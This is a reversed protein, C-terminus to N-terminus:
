IHDLQIALDGLKSRMQNAINADTSLIVLVAKEYDNEGLFRLGRALDTLVGSERIPFGAIIADLNNANLLGTIRELAAPYPSQFKIELAEQSQAVMEARNPITSLVKDRMQREAVRAALHEVKGNQRLTSLAKRKADNALVDPDLSLTAGQRIALAAIMEPAYYLSEISFFPLAYVGESALKQRFKLEMGDNDVFGFARVHHCAEVQRLGVVARRVNTCSSRHRVSVNPFLTAYFPQDLSVDQGEVFLITQRSGLLDVRLNDPIGESNPLIDVEWTSPTENEWNCGRVLIIPFEPHSNALALEHTCLITTCDPREALLASLLPVVIAPHLHLEPEDILIISDSKAAIVDAIFVLAIREGDSMKSISYTNGERVAKIEGNNIAIRVTLNSQELLRNVRDFPSSKSQLRIIAPSSSGEVEIQNAADVRFQLEAAQLDYIARENRATGSIPRIRTDPSSDWSPSNQEFQSRGNPTMNLSDGDFYCPRSGPLYVIKSSITRRCEGNIFHILASKGTGNRGLIILARKDLVEVQAPGQKTPISFSIQPMVILKEM